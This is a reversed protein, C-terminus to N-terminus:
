MPRAGLVSPPRSGANISTNVTESKGRPRGAPDVPVGSVRRFSGSANLTIDDQAHRVFFDDEGEYPSSSANIQWPRNNTASQLALILLGM